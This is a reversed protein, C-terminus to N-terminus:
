STQKLNNALAHANIYFLFSRFGVMRKIFNQSFAQIQLIPKYTLGMYKMRTVPWALEGIYQTM